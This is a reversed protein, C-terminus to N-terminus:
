RRDHRRQYVIAFAALIVYFVTLSLLIIHAPIEPNVFCVWFNLSFHVIIPIILNKTKNLFVDMIVSACIGTVSFAIIYFLLDLKSGGRIFWLPVHWLIWVIGNLLAGKIVGHQKSQEFFLYGRWGLEEGLPGSLITSIFTILVASPSFSLVNEYSINSILSIVASAAFFIAAQVLFLILAPKIWDKGRFRSKIFSIRSDCGTNLKSFLIFVALTPTWSSITSAIKVYKQPMGFSLLVGIVALLIWFIGYAAFIFKFKPNKM